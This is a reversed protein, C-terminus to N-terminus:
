EMIRVNSFQRSDILFCCLHAIQVESVVCLSVDAYEQLLGPLAMLGDRSERNRRMMCLYALNRSPTCHPDSGGSKFNGLM